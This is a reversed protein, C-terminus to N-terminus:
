GLKKSKSFKVKGDGSKGGPGVKGTVVGAAPPGSEGAPKVLTTENTPPEYLATRYGSGTPPGTKGTVIESVMGRLWGLENQSHELAADLAAIKADKEALALKHDSAEAVGDSPRLGARWLCDIVAQAAELGPDTYGAHAPTHVLRLLSTEQTDAPTSEGSKYSKFSPQAIFTVGGQHGLALRLCYTSTYIDPVLEAHWDGVVAYAASLQDPPM